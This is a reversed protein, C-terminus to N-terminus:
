LRYVENHWPKARRQVSARGSLRAILQQVDLKHVVIYWLIVHLIYTLVYLM